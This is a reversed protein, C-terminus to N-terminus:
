KWALKIDPMSRTEKQKENKKLIQKSYVFEPLFQSVDIIKGNKPSKQIKKHPKTWLKSITFDPKKGHFQTYEQSISSYTLLSHNNPYIIVM